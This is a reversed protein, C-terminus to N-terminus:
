KTNVDGDREKARKRKGSRSARHKEVTTLGEGGGRRHLDVWRAADPLPSAGASIGLVQCHALMAQFLKRSKLVILEPRLNIQVWELMELQDPVCRDGGIDVFVVNVGRSQEIVLNGQRLCDGEVFFLGPHRRRAEQVCEKSCDFGVTKRCYRALLVSTDGYSSGIEVCSDETLVQLRACLRFDVTEGVILARGLPGDNISPPGKLRYVRRAYYPTLEVEKERGDIDMLVVAMERGKSEDRRRRVVVGGTYKADHPKLAIRDGVGISSASLDDRHSHTFIEYGNVLASAM